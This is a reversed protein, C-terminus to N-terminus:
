SGGQIHKNTSAGCSTWPITPTNGPAALGAHALLEKVANLDAGNELMHTAFTHRLVHPSRGEQKTVLGLYREVTRQVSRRALPQGREHAPASRGPTGGDTMGQRAILQDKLLQQLHPHASPHAKTGNAWCGRTGAAPDVDGCRLGILEALRMGTGYLLELVLRDLRGRPRGALHGRHVAGEM